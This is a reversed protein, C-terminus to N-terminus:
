ILHYFKCSLADKSFISILFVWDSIYCIMELIRPFSLFSVGSTMIQHRLSTVCFAFHMMHNSDNRNSSPVLAILCMKFLYDLVKLLSLMYLVLLYVENKSLFQKFLTSNIVKDKELNFKKRANSLKTAMTAEYDVDQKVCSKLMLFNVFHQIHLYSWFCYSNCNNCSWLLVKLTLM